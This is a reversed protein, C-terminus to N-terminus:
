RELPELQADLTRRAGSAMPILKGKDVSEDWEHFGQSTVHLLVDRDTPVLIVRDPVGASIFESQPDTASVM